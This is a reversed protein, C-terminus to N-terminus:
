TLLITMNAIAFIYIVLILTNVKLKKIIRLTLENFSDDFLTDAEDLVINRLNNTKYIEILVNLFCKTAIASRNGM